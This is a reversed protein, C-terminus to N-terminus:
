GVFGRPRLWCCDRKKEDTLGQCLFVHIFSRNWELGDWIVPSVFFFKFHRERSAALFSLSIKYRCFNKGRLMDRARWFRLGAIGWGDAKIIIM